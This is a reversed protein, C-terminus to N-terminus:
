RRQPPKTTRIITRKKRTYRPKYVALATGFATMVLVGFVVWDGWHKVHTTVVWATLGVLVIGILVNLLTRKASSM